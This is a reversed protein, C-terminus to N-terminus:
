PIHNALWWFATATASTFVGIVWWLAKRVYGVDRVVATHRADAEKSVDGSLALTEGGDSRLMEATRRVVELRRGAVAVRAGARVFAEAIARGIGSGGGTVLVSTGAPLATDVPLDTVPVNVPVNDETM